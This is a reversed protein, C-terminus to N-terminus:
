ESVCVSMLTHTEVYVCMIFLCVCVCMGIKGCSCPYLFGMKGELCKLGKEICVWGWVVKKKGAVSM